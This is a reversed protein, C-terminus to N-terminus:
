FVATYAEDVALFEGKELGNLKMREWVRSKGQSTQYRTVSLVPQLQQGILFVSIRLFCPRYLESLSPRNPKAM